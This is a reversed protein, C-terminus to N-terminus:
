ATRRPRRFTATAQEIFGSVSVHFVHRVRVWLTRCLHLSFRVEVEADDSAQGINLAVLHVLAEAV